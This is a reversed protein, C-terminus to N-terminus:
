DEASSLEEPTVLAPYFVQQQSAFHVRRSKSSIMFPLDPSVLRIPELPSMLPSSCRMRKNEPEIDDDFTDRTDLSDFSRKRTVGIAEELTNSLVTRLSKQTSQGLANLRTNRRVLEGMDPKMPENIDDLNFTFSKLLFCPAGPGGFRILAGRRVKHPVVVGGNTPSVIRVGNVYTGHASGCDVVYCSGNSHHFVMAHRRSSTAHMLQIDSNPSRGIRFCAKTTLDVPTQRGIAECVPELRAVGKAAVAWAPPEIAAGLSQFNTSNLGRMHNNSNFVENCTSKLATSNIDAPGNATAFCSADLVNYRSTLCAQLSCPAGSSSGGAKMDERPISGCLRIDVSM